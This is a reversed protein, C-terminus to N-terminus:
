SSQLAYFAFTVAFFLCLVLLIRRKEGAHDPDKLYAWYVGFAAVPGIWMQGTAASHRRRIGFLARFMLFAWLIFLVGQLVLLIIVLTSM